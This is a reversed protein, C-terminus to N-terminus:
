AAVELERGLAAFIAEPGGALYTDTVDAQLRVGKAQRLQRTLTNVLEAGADDPDAWVWVRNFGALMRRWHPQWSQVGPVGVAHLGLKKLINRDLEGETVHIEDRADFISEIGYMRAPEGKVTEYKGHYPKHDCGERICRFRISLPQGARDLYPIALRGEYKGHGPIPDAVVGLRNTLAEERGIGRDLLYRAVTPTVARQYTATAEELTELQSVSLPQLPERETM